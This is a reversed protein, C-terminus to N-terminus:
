SPVYLDFESAFEPGFVMAFPAMSGVPPNTTAVRDCVSVPLTQERALCAIQPLIPGLGMIWEFAYRIVVGNQASDPLPPKNKSDLRVPSTLGPDYSPQNTDRFMYYCRFTVAGM